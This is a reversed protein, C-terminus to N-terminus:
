KLREVVDYIFRATIGWIIENKVNYILINYMRGGWPRSYSQPIGLEGAPFLMVERGENDIYSPEIMVRAKYREPEHNEFYSVPVTFAYEVEDRNIDLEHLGKIKLIGVFADVTTGMPAVMTDMFGVINIKDPTIGMEECTERIATQEISKDETPDYMGGPFCIEGGQRISASRKQFVFHWEDELMILPILIVSNFFEDKSLIGPVKPLRKKLIELHSPKM